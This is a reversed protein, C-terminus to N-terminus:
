TSQTILREWENLYEVAEFKALTAPIFLYLLYSIESWFSIQKVTPNMIEAIDIHFVGECVCEEFAHLLIIIALGAICALKIYRNTKFKKELAIKRNSHYKAQGAAFEKVRTKKEPLLDSTYSTLRIIKNIMDVPYKSEIERMAKHIVKTETKIPYYGCAYILKNIRLREAIFRYQLYNKHFSNGKERFILGIIIVLCIIEAITLLFQVNEPLYFAVKIALILAAGLWGLRFCTEWTNRYAAQNKVAVEDFAKFYDEVINDSFHEPRPRDNCCEVLHPLYNAKITLKKDTPNILLINKGKDKAYAVIQATGGTGKAKEENWIAIVYENDNVMKQGVQLYLEDRNNSSLQNICTVETVKPNKLLVEFETKEKLTDFDRIYEEKEFPLYIRLGGDGFKLYTLAVHAFLTDAGKAIPSTFLVFLAKNHPNHHYYVINEIAREIVPELAAQQEASLDRHGTIGISIVEQTNIAM